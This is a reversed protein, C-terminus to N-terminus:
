DIRARVVAKLVVKFIDGMPVQVNHYEGGSMNFLHMVGECQTIRHYLDRAIEKDKANARKM